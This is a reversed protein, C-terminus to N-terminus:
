YANRDGLLVTITKVIISLDLALSWTRLYELDYRIRTAMKEPTETAGRFGNIQALGTIGPRVKHRIMYGNIIKRYQENHAVAHPRPGVISMRGQLVNIFQPLEDLSTRRLFRGFPTIRSDNASAQRIAAGDECVTMSRFKYVVIEKGDLGYRRQKFLVPGPSDLKVGIAIAALLPWILLLIIAALLMDCARKAIGRVGYFPSECVAVVPIGNILDFRAQILDFVFLDPVFYISVTSDKLLDLLELIRPHRTMPLTIYVLNVANAAIYGPLDSAKGLVRNGAYHPLRAGSREEFFGLVDIRLFIDNRLKEALRVGLDTLGVVVARRPAIHQRGFRSLVAQAGLQGILLFAPTLLAWSLVVRGRMLDSLGTCYIVTWVLALVLLWRLAIDFFERLIHLRQGHGDLRAVDLVYATCLFALVALLFYPGDFPERWYLLCGALSTAAVVPYLLSKTLFVLSPDAAM